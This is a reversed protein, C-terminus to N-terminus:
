AVCGFGLGGAVPVLRCVLPRCCPRNPDPGGSGGCDGGLELCIPGGGSVAAAATLDRLPFSAAALPAAYALKAGTKVVARRTTPGAPRHDRDM